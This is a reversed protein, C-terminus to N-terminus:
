KLLDLGAKIADSVTKYKNGLVFGSYFVGGMVAILILDIM